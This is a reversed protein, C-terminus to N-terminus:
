KVGYLCEIFKVVTQIGSSRAEVTKHMQETLNNTMMPKSNIPNNIQPIQGGNIFSKRWGDCIKWMKLHEGLIAIIHFWCLITGRTLNQLALKTPRHKDIMDLPNWNSICEVQHQFGMGNPLNTYQYHYMCTSNNCPINVKVAQVVIRIIHYNEKDSLGFVLPSGYGAQDKIVIALVPAKENNLDYKGDIGFCFQGYNCGQKLWMEDSVTLQYYRESSNEPALINGHQYYLMKGQEKLTTTVLQDLVTWPGINERLQIDNTKHLHTLHAENTNNHPALIKMTIEVETDHHARHAAIIKDRTQLSLNIRTFKSDLIILVATRHIGQIILQVPLPDEVNSLM